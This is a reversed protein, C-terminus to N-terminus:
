WPARKGCTRTLSASRRSRPSPVVTSTLNVRPPGLSLEDARVAAVEDTDLHHGYVGVDGRFGAITAEVAHQLSPRPAACAALWLGAALGVFRM